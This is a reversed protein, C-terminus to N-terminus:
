LAATRARQAKVSLRNMQALMEARESTAKQLMARILTRDGDKLYAEIVPAPFLLPIDKPRRTMSRVYGSLRAATQFIKPPTEKEASGRM